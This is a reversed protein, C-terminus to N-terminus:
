NAAIARQYLRTFHPIDEKRLWKLHTEFLINQQQLQVLIDDIKDVVTRMFPNDTCMFGGVQFM